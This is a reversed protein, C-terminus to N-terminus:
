FTPNLSSSFALHFLQAQSLLLPHSSISFMCLVWLSGLSVLANDSCHFFVYLSHQPKKEHYVAATAPKLNRFYMYPTVHKIHLYFIRQDFLAVVILIVGEKSIIIKIRPKIEITTVVFLTFM